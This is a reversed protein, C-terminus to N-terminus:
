VVRLFFNSQIQSTNAFNADTTSAFAVNEGCQFLRINSTSAEANIVVQTHTGTFTILNWLGCCVNENQASFTLPFGTVVANGTSSGKNTLIIIMTVFAINGIRTYTGSQTSYTIGTSGGGFTLTPTWSTSAVYTSLINSGDDFTIGDMYLNDWSNTASGLSDARDGSPVIPATTVSVTGTGDPALIINGNTDTSSLTNGDLFLNDVTFDSASNNVSNQTM